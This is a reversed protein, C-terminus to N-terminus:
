DAEQGTNFRGEHTIPLSRKLIPRKVSNKLLLLELSVRLESEFKDSSIVQDILGSKLAQEARWKEGWLLFDTAGSLGLLRPLKGMGGYVPPFYYDELETMYFYTDFSNSAVRYDTCLAFEVGCGFCSGEIASVTPIPCQEVAHYADSMPKILMKM